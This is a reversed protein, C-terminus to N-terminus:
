RSCKPSLGDAVSARALDTSQDFVEGRLVREIGDRYRGKGLTIFVSDLEAPIVVKQIACM